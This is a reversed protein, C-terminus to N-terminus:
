AKVAESQAIPIHDSEAQGVGVEWGDVKAAEEIDVAEDVVEGRDEMEKREKFVDKTQADKQRSRIRTEVEAMVEAANTLDVGIKEAMEELSKAKNVKEQYEKKEVKSTKSIPPPSPKFQNLLFKTNGWPNNVYKALSLLKPAIETM